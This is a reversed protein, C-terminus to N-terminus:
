RWGRTHLAAQAAGGKKGTVWKFDPDVAVNSASQGWGECWLTTPQKEIGALGRRGTWARSKPDWGKQLETAELPNLLSTKFADPRETRNNLLRSGGDPMLPENRLAAQGNALLQSVRARVVRMADAAEPDRMVGRWDARQQSQVFQLLEERRPPVPRAERAQQLGPAGLSKWHKISLKDEMSITEKWANTIDVESPVLRHVAAGDGHRGMSPRVLALLFTNRVFPHQAM